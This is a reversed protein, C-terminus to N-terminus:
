EAAEVEAPAVISAVTTANLGSQKTLLELIQKNQAELKEYKSELESNKTRLESVEARLATAEEESIEESENNGLKKAVGIGFM